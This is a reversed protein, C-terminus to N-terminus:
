EDPSLIATEMERRIWELTFQKTAEIFTLAEIEMKERTDELRERIRKIKEQPDDPIDAEMRWKTNKGRAKKRTKIYKRKCLKNRM